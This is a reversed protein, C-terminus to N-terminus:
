KQKKKKHPLGGFWHRRCSLAGRSNHDFHIHYEYERRYELGKESLQEPSMRLLWISLM